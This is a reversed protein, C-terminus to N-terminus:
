SLLLIFITRFTSLLFPPIQYINIIDSASLIDCAKIHNIITAEELTQASTCKAITHNSSANAIITYKRAWVSKDVLYMEQEM